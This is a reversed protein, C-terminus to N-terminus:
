KNASQRKLYNLYDQHWAEPLHSLVNDKKSRHRKSHIHQMRSDGVKINNAFFTSNFDTLNEEEGEVQGLNLNWVTNDYKVMELSKITTEGNINYITMGEKLAKGILVGNATTVPHDQTLTLTDNDNTTLKISQITETGITTSTVTWVTGGQDGLVKMGVEIEEIAKSSRDAMTVRTGQALCGFYVQMPGIEYTVLAATDALTSNSVYACMQTGDTAPIRLSMVFNVMEGSRFCANGFDAPNLNWSLKNSNTVVTNANSFFNSNGLMKCGGGSENNTIWMSATGGDVKNGSKVKIDKGAFTVSGVVPFTIDHTASRHYWYTCEAKSKRNTCVIIKSKQGKPGMPEINEFSPCTSTTLCDKCNAIFQGTVASSTSHMKYYYTMKAALVGSGTYAENSTSKLDEGGSYQENTAAPGLIGSGNLLQISNQSYYATDPISSLATATATNSNFMGLGAVLQVPVISGSGITMDVPGTGEVPIWGSEKNGLLSATTYNKHYLDTRLRGQARLNLHNKRLEKISNFLAPSTEKSLGQRKLHALYHRHQRDDSHDYIFNEDHKSLTLVYKFDEIEQQSYDDPFGSYKKQQCGM